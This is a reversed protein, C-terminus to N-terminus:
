LKFLFGFLGSNVEKAKKNKFLQQLGQGDKLKQEECIRWYLRAKM